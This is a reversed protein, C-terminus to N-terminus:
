NSLCNELNTLELLSLKHVQSEVEACFSNGDSDRSVELISEDPQVKKAAM